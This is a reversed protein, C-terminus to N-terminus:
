GSLDLKWDNLITRIRRQSVNAVNSIELTSEGELYRKVIEKSLICKTKRM